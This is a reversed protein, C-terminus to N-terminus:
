DSHRLKRKLWFLVGAGADVPLLLVGILVMSVSYLVAFAFQKIDRPGVHKKFDRVQERVKLDTRLKFQVKLDLWFHRWSFMGCRAHEKEHRLCLAHLEPFAKVYESIEIRRTLDVTDYIVQGLISFTDVYIIRVENEMSLPRLEPFVDRLSGMLRATADPNPTSAARVVYSKQHGRKMKTM